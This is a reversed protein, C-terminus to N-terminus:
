AKFDSIASDVPDNRVLHGIGKHRVELPFPLSGVNVAFSGPFPCEVPPEDDVVFSPRMLGEVPLRGCFPTGLEKRRSGRCRSLM